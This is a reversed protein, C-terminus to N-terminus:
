SKSKEKILDEVAKPITTEFDLLKAWTPTVTIVVMEDYLAKVGAEWDPYQEDTTVKHGALLYGEPVGPVLEVEASGRILLVKPPFAGTDITLAVKPNKRLAAVKASKPVTAMLIKDGEVWFGIPIVRPDGDLGDYAFRAPEPGTILEQAYPKALIAAIEDKTM